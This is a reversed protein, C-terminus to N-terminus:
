VAKREGFIARGIRVITAGEEIAVEFDESMGMSLEDLGFSEFRERLRRGEVFVWRVDEPNQAQPAVFMFGRPRVLPYLALRELLSGVDDPAIGEKQDEGALNVEILVDWARRSPEGRAHLVKAERERDVSHVLTVADLFRIKNTQIAGLYHWRVAAPLAAAKTALDKADNEGLDTVGADVAQAIRGIEVTKVAAVIRVADPERGSRRAAGAVRERVEAVSEAIGM